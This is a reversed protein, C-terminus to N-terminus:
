KKECSGFFKLANMQLYRQGTQTHPNWLTTKRWYWGRFAAQITIIKPLLKPHHKVIVTLIKVDFERSVEYGNSILEQKAWIVDSISPNNSMTDDLDARNPWLKWMRLLIGFHVRYSYPNEQWISYIYDTYSKDGLYIHVCPKDLRQLTDTDLSELKTVMWEIIPPTYGYRRPSPYFDSWYAMLVEASTFPLDGDYYLDLIWTRTWFDHNREYISELQTIDGSNCADLLETQQFSIGNNDLYQRTWNKRIASSNALIKEIKELNNSNCADILETNM